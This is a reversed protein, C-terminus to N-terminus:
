LNEYKTEEGFAWRQDKGHYDAIDWEIECPIGEFEPWSEEVKNKINTILSKVDKKNVYFDMSDHTANFMLCDLKNKEIYKDAELLVLQAVAIEFNQVPSNVSINQLNKILGSDENRDGKYLLQPLRRICGFSSKVYGNKEAFVISNEIWQKLGYYKEFFKKKIDNAVAWYKCFRLDLNRKKSIENKHLDYPKNTLKNNILYQDIEEIPWEKELTEEAFSIGATNFELSFNIAKAKFRLEKFEPEKKRSIFEEISIKNNLLISAASVSHLDGGLETFARKMEIDKSLIAGIRLQFGSFDLSVIVHDKSPSKFSKRILQAYDGHKVVNQLNPNNCKNRGSDALMVAFNPHVNNDPYRYQWYGNNRSEEGVFTNMLTNLGHIETIIKATEYSDKIWLKLTEDNILYDGRKSIGYCPWNNKKLVNGLQIDSDWNIDNVTMNFSKALENQLKLIKESLEKGVERVKDWDIYTGRFEVKTFLNISPIVIDYYYKSLNWKDNENFIKEDVQKFQEKQKKYIQFAAISDMIAYPALIEKPIQSFDIKKYKRKYQDLEFEYGGYNTYFWALSKVSNSRMENLCHGANIIDFDVKVNTIGQYLLFKCDFKLNGGIQYKNKFFNNLLKKDIKEWDLYYGTIGDFSMTICVIKKSMFNFGSTEIDWAVEKEDMNDLLFQNVDEVIIKNLVSIRQKIIPFEVAKKIQLFAFYNFWCDKGWFQDYRDIPFIISQLKSSNFYSQNFIIDYFGEVTIDTDFTIANLARGITLIKSHPQIYNKLEITNDAYFNSIQKKLEELSPIFKFPYLIKIRNTSYKKEILSVLFDAETKTFYKDTIIVLDYDECERIVPNIQRQSQDKTLDKDQFNFFGM